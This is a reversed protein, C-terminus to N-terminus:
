RHHTMTPSASLVLLGQEGIAGVVRGDMAVSAQSVRQVVARM